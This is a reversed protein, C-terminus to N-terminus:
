LSAACSPAGGTSGPRHHLPPPAPPRPCPLPAVPIPSTINWDHMHPISAATRAPGQSIHPVDGATYM